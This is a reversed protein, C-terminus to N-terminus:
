VTCTFEAIFVFLGNKSAFYHVEYFIVVIILSNTKKHLPVCSGVVIKTANCKIEFKLKDTPLYNAM